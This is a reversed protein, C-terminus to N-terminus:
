LARQELRVLRSGGRLQHHRHPVACLMTTNEFAAVSDDTADRVDNWHVNEHGAAGGFGGFDQLADQCCHTPQRLLLSNLGLTEVKTELHKMFVRNRAINM